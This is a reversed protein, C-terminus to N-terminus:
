GLVIVTAARAAHVAVRRDFTALRGNHVEAEGVLYADIVQPHGLAKAFIEPAPAPLTEWYRHRGVRTLRSLLEAAASPSAAASTYSPNSSLRVFALQTLACTAWGRRGDREFWAQAAGHHQHNPWALALLVNVDLLIGRV